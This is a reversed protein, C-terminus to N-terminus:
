FPIDEEDVDDPVSIPSESGNSDKSGLFIVQIAKMEFQSGPSGDDRVYVRPNGTEKDETYTGEVLVQRGKKLYLNVPEAQGGWVSVRVWKTRKHKTGNKDTWSKNVAVNITTVPTGQEGHYRMEPDRTLNGVIITKEYM